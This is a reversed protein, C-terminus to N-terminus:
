CACIYIERGYGCTQLICFYGAGWLQDRALYAYKVHAFTEYMPNPYYNVIWM